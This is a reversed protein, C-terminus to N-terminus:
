LDARDFSNAMTLLTFEHTFTMTPCQRELSQELVTNSKDIKITLDIKNVFGLM